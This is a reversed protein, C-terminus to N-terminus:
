QEEVQAGWIEFDTATADKNGIILITGSTSEQTMRQWNGDLTITNGQGINNGVGFQVTEGSVGKIYM